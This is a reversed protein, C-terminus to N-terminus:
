TSGHPQESAPRAPGEAADLHRDALAVLVPLADTLKAREAASLADIDDSLQSTGERRLDELAAAGRDSISLLCARQDQPDGARRVLDGAELAEALRSMSAASVGLRVALDGPRQPGNRDLAAMASLRTPTIGHRTAPTRLHFALRNIVTRLQGAVEGTAPTRSPPTM